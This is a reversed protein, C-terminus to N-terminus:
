YGYDGYVDDNPNKFNEGALDDASPGTYPKDDTAPNAGGSLRGSFTDDTIASPSKEGSLGPEFTWDHRKGKILWVYHGMLANIQSIDQDLRETIEFYKGNREGPRDSGYEVLQFVDGSRPEAISLSSMSEKFSDIHIVGQIDDDGMLGFKSFILGTQTLDLMVVMKVPLSYSATTHEGYLNDAASLTYGSAYYDIEQGFVAIEEKWWNSFNTRENDNLSKDLYRLSTPFETSM